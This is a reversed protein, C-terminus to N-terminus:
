RALARACARASACVCMCMCMCLTATSLADNILSYLYEMGRSEFEYKMIM